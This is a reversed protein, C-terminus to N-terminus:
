EGAAHSECEFRVYPTGYMALGGDPEARLQAEAVDREVTCFVGAAAGTWAGEQWVQCDNMQATTCVFAFLITHM